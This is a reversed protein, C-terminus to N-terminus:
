KTRDGSVSVVTELQGAAAGQDAVVGVAELEEQQWLPLEGLRSRRSTWIVSSALLVHVAMKSEPKRNRVMADVLRPHTGWLSSWRGASRLLGADHDV